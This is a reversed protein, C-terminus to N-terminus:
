SKYVDRLPHESTRHSTEQFPECTHEEDSEYSMFSVTFDEELQGDEEEIPDLEYTDYQDYRPDWEEENQNDTWWHDCDVENIEVDDYDDIEM